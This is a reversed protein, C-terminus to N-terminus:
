EGREGVKAYKAELRAFVVEAAVLEGQEAQDIGVQIDAKLKHDVAKLKLEHEQLLALGELVVDAPHEFEGSEVLERVLDAYPGGARVYADNNRKFTTTM